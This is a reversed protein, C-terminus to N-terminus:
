ARGESGDDDGTTVPREWRGSRMSAYCADIIRNVTLGDEFTEAPATDAVFHDVFHRMMQSFGYARTEEPVPYVWGTESDAKEVLYGAPQGIFGWVSGRDHAPM